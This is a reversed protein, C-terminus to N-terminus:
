ESSTFEHGRDGHQTISKTTRYFYKEANTRKQENQPSEQSSRVNSLENPCHITHITCKQNKDTNKKKTRTKNGLLKLTTLM